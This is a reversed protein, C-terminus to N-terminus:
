YINIVCFILVQILEKYSPGKYYRLHAFVVFLWRLYTDHRSNM